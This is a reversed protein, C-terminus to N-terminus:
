KILEEVETLEYNEETFEEEEEESAKKLRKGLKILTSIVDVSENLVINKFLYYVIMPVAIPLGIVTILLFSIFRYVYKKISITNTDEKPNIDGKCNCPKKERGKSQKNDERVLREQPPTPFPPLVNYQRIPEYNGIHPNTNNYKNMQNFLFETQKRKEEEENIMELLGKQPPNSTLSQHGGIHPTNNTTQNEGKNLYNKSDM